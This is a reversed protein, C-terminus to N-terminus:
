KEGLPFLDLGKNGFKISKAEPFDSLNMIGTVLFSFLYLM